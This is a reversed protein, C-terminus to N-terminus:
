FVDKSPEASTPYSGTAAEPFFCDVSLSVDTHAPLYTAKICWGDHDTNRTMGISRLADFLGAVDIKDVQRIRYFLIDLDKREGGKYLCGGTLAVHCGFAPALSEIQVCVEHALSTTWM